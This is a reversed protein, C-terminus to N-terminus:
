RGCKRCKLHRCQMRHVVTLDVKGKVFTDDERTYYVDDNLIETIVTKIRIPNSNFDLGYVAIRDGAKFKM